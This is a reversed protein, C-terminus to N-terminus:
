NGNIQRWMKKAKVIDRSQTGKNGGTLLIVNSGSRVFYIRTGPRDKFVLELIGDGVSHSDGFLGKEVRRLRVRVKARVEALLDDEWKAFENTYQLEQPTPEM